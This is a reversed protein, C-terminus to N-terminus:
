VGDFSDVLRGSVNELVTAWHTAGLYNVESGDYDLHGKVPSQYERSSARVAPNRSQKDATGYTCSKRDDDANLEKGSSELLGTVMDELKQLRIQAESTRSISRTGDRGIEETM